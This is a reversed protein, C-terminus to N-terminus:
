DRPEGPYYFGHQHRAEDMLQMIAISDAHPMIPSDVLGDHLCQHVHEIEHVYGHGTLPVDFHQVEDGRHLSFHETHFFPAHMHIYGEDGSIFAEIPSQEVFACSLIAVHGDKYDFILQTQEDVGTRGIHMNSIVRQGDGSPIGFFLAAANIPYVGLDLLAGGGQTADYLRNTEDFPLNISFSARISRPQGIAGSRVQEVAAQVGPVFRQWMAEMLFLNKDRALQVISRAEDATLTLAKECLVHKGAELCLRVNDAHFAHPTGIYIVDVDPDSALSEYSGYAREINHRDAFSRATADRRSGVALVNAQEVHHLDRTFVDAIAGTSLIGWNIHHQSTPRDTQNM